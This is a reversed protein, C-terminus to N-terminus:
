TLLSQMSFKRCKLSDVDFKQKKQTQKVSLEWLKLACNIKKRSYLKNKSSAPVITSVPLNQGVLRHLLNVELERPRDDDEAGHLVPDIVVKHPLERVPEAGTDRVGGPRLPLVLHVLPIVMEHGADLLHFRVDLGVEEDLGPLVVFVEVPSTHLGDFIHSKLNTWKIANM